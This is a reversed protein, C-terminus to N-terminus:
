DTLELTAEVITTLLKPDDADINPVDVVLGIKLIVEEMVAVVAGEDNSILEGNLLFAFENPCGGVSDPKPEDLVNPGVVVVEAVKGAGCLLENLNLAGVFVLLMNPVGFVVAEEKTVGVVENPGGLKPFGIFGVKALADLVVFLM